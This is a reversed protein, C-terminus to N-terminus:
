RSVRELAVLARGHHPELQVAKQYAARAAPRNNLFRQCEGLYFWADALNDDLEIAREFYKLAPAPSGHRLGAIGTAQNALARQSRAAQKDGQRDYLRALETHLEGVSRMRATEEWLKRAQETDGAALYAKGLVYMAQPYQGQEKMMAELRDIAAQAKGQEIEVSALLLTADKDDDVAVIQTLLAAAEDWKKEAVLREAERGLKDVGFKNRVEKAMAAVPELPMSKSNYESRDRFSRMQQSEGLAKAMQYSLLFLETTGRQRRALSNLPATAADTRQARIRLKALQFLAPDYEGAAAFAQEAQAVDDLRLYCRGIEYQVKPAEGATALGLAKNLQEVAVQLEGLRSLSVGYLYNAEFVSANLEVATNFCRKAESFFGFAYYAKGLEIWDDSAVKQTTVKEQVQDRLAELDGRTLADIETLNPLLVEASSVTTESDRSTTENVEPEANGTTTIWGSVRGLRDFPRFLHLGGAVVDPRTDGNLDGCAVTTLMIPRRAIRRQEFHQSGDNELWVLSASDPADWDNVMSCLVVDQDGDDDLDAADAAYAGPFDALRHESFEWDGRNELWLCGHYPQPISYSDELNDGVPLLLDFDGDGDLDTKVLGASGIDYNDTRWLRRAAFKGGGLNEFGWAEEEDQSVIAAIDLDGDGDYDAVPVHITGPAYMLEHDRFNGNGKNELWLIQGRLYGFVAVALDLDGDGDFDGAQADVVRRVDDLLVKKTFKGGQNELLVLSGIVGDDPYLNGMVSVLVDLDQDQDLDVITAHAPAILGDALKTESWDGNSSRQCWFVANAQSDCIVVDQSGDQNLDVVQVNTIRPRALPAAGIQKLQFALPSRRAQEASAGPNTTQGRAHSMILAVALWCAFTQRLRFSPM